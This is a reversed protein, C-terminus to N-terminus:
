RSATADSALTPYRATLLLAYAYTQAAYRLCYTGLEAAGAPIRTVALSAFWAVVALVALVSGLVSSFVLAPVALVPRFVVTVRPQTEPPKLEVDVPYTRRGSFRPWPDALLLLYACVHVHYRVLRTMFSHVRPPELRGTFILRLWLFPFLLLGAVLWLSAWACHPVALPLRLLVTRRTRRLDDTIVLRVPHKL